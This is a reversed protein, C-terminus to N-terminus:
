YLKQEKKRIVFHYAVFLGWLALLAYFLLTLAPGAEFGTYPVQTLTIGAVRPTQDRDDIVTVEDDEVEIEVDCERDRSGREVVLTYTTDRTPRVTIEGEEVDDEDDTDYIDDGDDKDGEYITLERGFRTEWELTVREGAKIKRDSAKLECRPLPSGGGGGGSEVNVDVSCTDKKGDDGYATLVFDTDNNIVVDYNGDEDVRGIGNNIEVRDANTTGWTLTVETGKRVEDDNVRLFDCKPYEVEKYKCSGDDETAKPNYNTADVDTCGPVKHDPQKKVYVVKECTRIIQDKSVATLVFTYTGISNPMTYTRGQTNDVAVNGIGNNISVKSANTTEWTFVVDKGPYVQTKNVTFMDCKPVVKAYHCSGDDKTAKPNYNTADKDTCGTIETVPKKIVEVVDQCSRKVGDKSEATLIFTYTGISNPMTHPRGSLNTEHGVQGIGNNITVKTANTTKWTLTVKGGPYVKAKDISFSDCKPIVKPVVVEKGKVTVSASCSVKKGEANHATLVYTHKKPSTTNNAAIDEGRGSLNTVHGVEGIGNNITVKTANKTAWTLKVKGGTAPLQKPAITFSECVPAPEAKKKVTVKASCSSDFGQGTLTFTRSTENARMTITRSGTDGVNVGNYKFAGYSGNWRITYTDGAAVSTASATIVCVAKPYNYDNYNDGRDGNNGHGGGNDSGGGCCGGDGAGSGVALAENLLNTQQSVYTFIGFAFAVLVLSFAVKNFTTTMM